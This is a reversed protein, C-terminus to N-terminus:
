AGRQWPRRRAAIAGRQISEGLAFDEDTAAHLIDNNRDWHARAKPSLAPGPIATYSTM